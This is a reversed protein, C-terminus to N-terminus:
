KKIRYKGGTCVRQVTTYSLGLRQAIQKYTWGGSRLVFISRIEQETLLPGPDQYKRVAPAKTEPQALPPETAAPRATLQLPRDRFRAKYGYEEIKAVTFQISFGLKEAIEEAPTGVCALARLRVLKKKEEPTLPVALISM